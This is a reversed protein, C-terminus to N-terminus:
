TKKDLYPSNKKIEFIGKNSEGDKKKKTALNCFNLWFFALTTFCKIEM